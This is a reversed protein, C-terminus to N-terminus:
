MKKVYSNGFNNSLSLFALSVALMTYDSTIWHGAVAKAMIIILPIYNIVGINKNKKQANRIISLIFLIFLILGPIGWIMVIEHFADHPPISVYDLAKDSYNQLGLGFLLIQPESWICEAVDIIIEFRGNSIDAVQWRSIYNNIINSSSLGLVFMGIVFIALSYFFYKIKQGITKHEDICFFFFMISLCTIYTRSLTLLGLIVLFLVCLIDIKKKDGYLYRQLLCTIGLVCMVGLANPNIAGGMVEADEAVSGLRQMNMISYSLNNGSIAAVKAILTVGIGAVFLAYCRSIFYYDLMEIDISCLLWIFLYPLIIGVIRKVSLEDNFSHLLEWTLISWISLILFNIKIKSRNRILLIAIAILIMYSYDFSSYLPICSICMAVVESNDGIFVILISIILLVERPINIQMGYRIFVSFMLLVFLFSVFLKKNVVISNLKM